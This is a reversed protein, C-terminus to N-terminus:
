EKFQNEILGMFRNALNNARKYDNISKAYEIIHTALAAVLLAMKHNDVEVHLRRDKSLITKSEALCHLFYFDDPHLHLFYLMHPCLTFIKQMYDCVEPIDWLERYDDDYDFALLFKQYAKKGVINLTNIIQNLREYKRYRVENKAINFIVLTKEDFDQATIKKYSPILDM